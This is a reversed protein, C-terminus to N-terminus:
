GARGVMGNRVILEIGNAARETHREIRIFGQDSFGRALMEENKAARRSLEASGALFHEGRATAGFFRLTHGIAKAVMAAIRTNAPDPIKGIDGRLGSVLGFVGRRQTEAITRGVDIGAIRGQGSKLLQIKDVVATLKEFAVVLKATIEIGLVQARLRVQELRDQFREMTKIADADVLLGLERAERGLRRLGEGGLELTNVLGVGESDFLKMSLRVRDAPNDVRLMADAIAQFKEELPLRQLDAASLKLEKLANRAEGQGLNAEAIRRTMRQLGIALTEFPVGTREAAFRLEQLQRVGIGLRASMKGIRDGSKAANVGLLGVGAAILGGPGIFRAAGAVGAVIGRGLRTFRRQVGAIAGATRDVATIDYRATARTAL